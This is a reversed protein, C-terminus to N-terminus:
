CVETIRREISKRPTRFTAQLAGILEDESLGQRKLSDYIKKFSLPPMLICAAMYDADNEDQSRGKPNERHMFMGQGTYHLLYHALEHTVIFRKFEITRISNIVIDKESGDESVTINGDETAPLTELETVNFGFARALGVADIRMDQGDVFGVAELVRRSRDEIKKKEVASLGRKKM